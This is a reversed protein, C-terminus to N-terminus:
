APLGKSKRYRPIAFKLLIDTMASFSREELSRLKEVEQITTPDLTTHARDKIRKKKPM